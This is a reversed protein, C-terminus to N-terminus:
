ENEIMEKAIRDIINAVDLESLCIETPSRYHGVDIYQKLREQMKRVTDAKAQNRATGVICELATKDRMLRENEESLEKILAFADTMLIEMSSKLRDSKYFYPCGECNYKESTCHELAKIIEDRNLEM